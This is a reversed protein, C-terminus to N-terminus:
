KKVARSHEQYCSIQLPMNTHIKCWSDCVLSIKNMWRNAHKMQLNFKTNIPRCQLRDYNKETWYM